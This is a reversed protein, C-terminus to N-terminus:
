RANLYSFYPFVGGTNRASEVDIVCSLSFSVSYFFIVAAVAYSITHPSPTTEVHSTPMVTSKTARTGTSLISNGFVHLFSPTNRRAKSSVQAPGTLSSVYVIGRHRKLSATTRRSRMIMCADRISSSQRNGDEDGIHVREMFSDFGKANVKNHEKPEGRGLRARASRRSNLKFGTQTHTHTRSHAFRPELERIARVNAQVRPQVVKIVEGGRLLAQVSDAWVSDLHQLGVKRELHPVKGERQQMLLQSRRLHKRVVCEGREEAIPAHRHRVHMVVGDVEHANGEM